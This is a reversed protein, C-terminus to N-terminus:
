QCVNADFCFNKLEFYVTLINAAPDVIKDCFRDDESINGRNAWNYKYLRM